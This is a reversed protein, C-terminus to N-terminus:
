GNELRKRPSKLPDPDQRRPTTSTQSNLRNNDQSTPKNKKGQFHGSPHGQSELLHLVQLATRRRTKRRTRSNDLPSWSRSDLSIHLLWLAWWCEQGFNGRKWSNYQHATLM